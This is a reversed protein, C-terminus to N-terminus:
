FVEEWSFCPALFRSRLVTSFSNAEGDVATGQHSACPFLSVLSKPELEVGSFHRGCRVCRGLTAVKADGKVLHWFEVRRARWCFLHILGKDALAQVDFAICEGEEFTVVMPEYVVPLEMDHSRVVTPWVPEGFGSLPVALPLELQKGGVSLQCSVVSKAISNSGSPLHAVSGSSSGTSMGNPRRTMRPGGGGELDAIM